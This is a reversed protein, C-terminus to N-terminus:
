METKTVRSNFIKGIPIEHTEDSLKIQVSDSESVM